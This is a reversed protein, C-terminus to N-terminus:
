RVERYLGFRLKRKWGYWAFHSRVSEIYDARVKEIDVRYPPGINMSEPPSAEWANQSHPTVQRRTETLLAQYAAYIPESEVAIWASYFEIGEQLEHYREVLPEDPEDRNRRHVRYPMETWQNILSLAKAYEARQRDHAAARQALAFVLTSSLLGLVAVILGSM